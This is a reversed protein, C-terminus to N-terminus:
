NEQMLNTLLRLWHRLRSYQTQRSINLTLMSQLLLTTERVILMRLMGLDGVGKGTFIGIKAANKLEVLLVARHRKWDDM